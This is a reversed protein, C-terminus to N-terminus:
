SILLSMPQVSLNISLLSSDPMNQTIFVLVMFGCAKADEKEKNFRWLSMSPLESDEGNKSASQTLPKFLPSLVKLGLKAM